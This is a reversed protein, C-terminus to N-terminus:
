GDGGFRVGAAVCGDTSVCGGMRGGSVSFFSFGLSFCIQLSLLLGLVSFFFFFGHVLFFFILILQKSRKKPAKCTVAPLSPFLLLLQALGV